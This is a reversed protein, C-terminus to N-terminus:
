AAAGTEESLSESYVFEEIEALKDPVHGRMEEIHRRLVGLLESGIKRLDENTFTMGRPDDSGEYNTIEGIEDMVSDLVSEALGIESVHPWPSVGKAIWYKAGNPEWDQRSTLEQRAHAIAEEKDEGGPVFCDGDLSFYYMRPAKTGGYAARVTACRFIQMDERSCEDVNKCQECHKDELWRALNHAEFREDSNEWFYADIMSRCTHCLKRIELSPEDEDPFVELSFTPTTITQECLDCRRQKDGGNVAEVSIYIDDLWVFDESQKDM